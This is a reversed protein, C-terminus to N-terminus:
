AAFFFTSSTDAIIEITKTLYSGSTGGVNVAGFSSTKVLGNTDFGVLEVTSQVADIRLTHGVPPTEIATTTSIIAGFRAIWVNGPDAMTVIGAYNVTTGTGTQAGSNIVPNTRKQGRYVHCLIDTSGTWTGSLETGSTAVKYAVTSSCNTGTNLGVSTWGAPISPATTSNSRFAFVLLLDGAAHGSPIAVSTAEASSANIYSLAM